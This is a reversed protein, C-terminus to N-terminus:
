SATAARIEQAVRDRLVHKLVKGAPNHPLEDLVFLQEPFKQRALGSTELFAVLAPLDLTSGPRLVVCACPTEGLRAHPMAVVAAQAIAPHGHLVDEIEKPSLNEGGRIILDKKRGTITLYGREDLVGLDGTRFFGDADFADRTHAPDTYGLMVEPGRVLIEGAQGPPLTRGSDADAIHVENNFVRGDTSAGLSPPDGPHFGMSVTPAESCGYGRTTICNPLVVRARRIVEPPVPAGGCSYRRLSPLPRGRREVEGVLEVLFPTAGVSITVQHQEILDVGRRFEWRDMLVVPAAIAFPLELAFLYGTIHTVPSPMFIVDRETLGRDQILADIEARLTNHSHLVGKPVGTTGSTYLLLKLANPDPPPFSALLADAADAEAAICQELNAHEGDDARVLVVEPCRGLQPGLRQMMALYDFNRFSQPIFFVRTRSSELIFGVEADRYIPVIPNCVFGGISAALNIVLTEHWNPLQFSVVDGPKLGRRRLASALRAARELLDAFGLQVDGDVVATRAAAQQACQRACDTLTVGSWHGSGTYRDIMADDLRTGWGSVDTRM